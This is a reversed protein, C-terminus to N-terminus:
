RDAILACAIPRAAALSPHHTAFCRIASKELQEITLRSEGIPM